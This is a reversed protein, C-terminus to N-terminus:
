RRAVWDFAFALPICGIVTILVFTMVIKTPMPPPPEEYRRAWNESYHRRYWASFLVVIPIPPVLVFTWAAMYRLLDSLSLHVRPLTLALLTEGAILFIFVKYAGRKMAERYWREERIAPNFSLWLRVLGGLLLEDLVVAAM